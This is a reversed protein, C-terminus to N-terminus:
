CEILAEGLVDDARKAFRDTFRLKHPYPVYVGLKAFNLVPLQQQRKVSVRPVPITENRRILPHEVQGLSHCSQAVRPEGQDYRFRGSM